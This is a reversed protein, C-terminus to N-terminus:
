PRELVELGTRLALLYLIGSLQCLGGGFDAQLKGNILNRGERFGNQATPAGLIHWYSFVQGAQILVKNIRQAGLRLNHLKNEYYSSQRIPQEELANFPLIPFNVDDSTFQKAIGTSQDRWQRRLLQAQLRWHPPIQDKLWRM